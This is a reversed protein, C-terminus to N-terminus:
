GSSIEGSPEPVDKTVTLKSLAVVLLDIKKELQDIKKELTEIKDDFHSTSVGGALGFPM